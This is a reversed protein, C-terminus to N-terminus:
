GEHPAAAAVGKGSSSRRLRALSLNHSWGSAASPQHLPQPLAPEGPPHAQGTGSGGRRHPTSLVDGRPTLPATLAAEAQWLAAGPPPEQIVRVMRLPQLTHGGAGAGARPSVCGDLVQAAEARRRRRVRLAIFIGAAAAPIALLSLGVALWNIGAGPTVSESVTTRAPAGSAAPSVPSPQLSLEMVTMNVLGPSAAVQLPPRFAPITSEAPSRNHVATSLLM